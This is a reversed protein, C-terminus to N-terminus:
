RELRRRTRARGGFYGIVIGLVAAVGLAVVLRVEADWFFFRVNVQDSNALAFWLLLAVAVLSVITRGSPGRREEDDSRGSRGRDGDVM